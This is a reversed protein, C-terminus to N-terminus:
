EAMASPVAGAGTDEAVTCLSEIKLSLEVAFSFKAVSSAESATKPPINRGLYVDILSLLRTSAGLEASSGV